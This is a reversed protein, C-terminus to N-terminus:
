RTSSPHRSTMINKLSSASHIPPSPRGRHLRQLFLHKRRASRRPPRQRRGHSRTQAEPQPPAILRPGAQDTTRRGFM